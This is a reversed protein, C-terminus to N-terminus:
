EAVLGAKVLLWVRFFRLLTISSQLLQNTAVRLPNLAHIIKEIAETESRPRPPVMALFKVPGSRLDLSLHVQSPENSPLSLVCYCDQAEQAALLGMKHCLHTLQSDIVASAREFVWVLTATAVSAAYAIM